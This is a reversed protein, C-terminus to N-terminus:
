WGPWRAPRRRVPGPSQVPVHPTSAALWPAVLKAGVGLGAVSSAAPEVPRRAPRRAPGEPVRGPRPLRGGRHVGEARREGGRRDHQHPRRADVARVAPRQLVGQRRLGPHTDNVITWLHETAFVKLIATELMYDDAGRDIFAACQPRRRRWRSPTPPRSRSRRRCWSSSPSRSSSSCAAEQRARDDGQPVGQRARHLDGRVDDPRLQAGDAGGAARPRAPRPHEGEAGAHQHVADQRDRHRPHRVERGPGRGGRVGAHGADGPVGDGEIEGSAPDPTRAMVTLVDAIGGNTIYHKMGNLVYASGDDTPTATTQVNGADSGAEPETLAFAASSRGTSAPRAAM